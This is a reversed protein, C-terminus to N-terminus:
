RKLTFHGKHISGDQREFTFWYDDAKLQSGGVTGDWSSSKIDIVKILKGYRDMITVKNNPEEEFNNISWIDNYGDGNPTFFKPYNLLFINQKVVGCGLKDKVYVIYSGSMLNPFYNDDQFSLGDISYEFEGINSTYVTLSNENNEFDVTEIRDIKPSESIFVSIDKTASCITNETSNSVTVSIKNEGFNSIIIKPTTEGTSWLYSTTPLNNLSADLTISSLSCSTYSNNLDIKPIRNSILSFSTTEYCNPFLNFMLRAYILKPNADPHFDSISTISNTNNQADALSTFYSVSYDNPSQNGLIISTQSSLDFTETTLDESCKIMDPPTNINILSVIRSVDFIRLLSNGCENSIMFTYTAPPLDYFINSYGNDIEFPLGDKKIIKYSINGAGVADIVVDLNNLSSCPLRYIERLEFTQNYNLNSALVEVCYKNKANSTEDVIDYGNNFVLFSRVVRFTGNYAFNYNISSNTLEISNLSDPMANEAYVIESEPHGWTDSNADILKQLWFKQSIFANSTFYLSINFSNCTPKLNVINKTIIYGEINVSTTDVENCENVSRFVYQGSQLSNMYFAGYSINNSVDFPLNFNSTSPAEIIQVSVLKSSKGTLSISSEGLGCGPRIQKNIGVEEMVESIEFNITVTRECADIIKVIYTGSTANQFKILSLYFPGPYNTNSDNPNFDQPHEVFLLQYPATFNTAQFNILQQNCNKASILTELKIVGNIQFSKLIINGCNDTIKITYDYIFNPYLPLNQTIPCTYTPGSEISNSIISETNNIPNVLIYEITLPYSIIRDSTASITNSSIIENCSEPLTQTIKQNGIALSNSNMSIIFTTVHGNGCSDFVRIQYEGVPLHLFQNNTQLPFIIPGAIIEYDIAVGSTINITLNRYNSCDSNLSEISYNLSIINNEITVYAEKESISGLVTEKAVIKYEGHTLGSITTSTITAYPTTSNPLKYIFFVLTGNSNTDFTEISISGNGICTETSPTATFSFGFSMIPVLFFGIIYRIFFHTKM